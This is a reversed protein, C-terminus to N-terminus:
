AEAQSQLQKMAEGIAKGWRIGGEILAKEWGNDAVVHFKLGAPSSAFKIYQQIEAETLNRYTYLLSVWTEMKMSAEIEPRYKKIEGQIDALSRQQEKPLSANVGLSLAAQINIYTKVSNKTAQVATDFKQIVRLREATPPSKQLNEAYKYSETYAEPASAEEELQTCKIGLPSNLWKLITKLDQNSLKERFESLM